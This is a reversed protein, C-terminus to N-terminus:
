FIGSAVILLNDLYELHRSTISCAPSSTTEEAWNALRHM